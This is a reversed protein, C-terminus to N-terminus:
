KLEKEIEARQSVPDSYKPWNPVALDDKKDSIEEITQSKDEVMLNQRSLGADAMASNNELSDMEAEQEEKTSKKKPPEKGQTVIKAAKKAMTIAASETTPNLTAVPEDKKKNEGGEKKDTVYLQDSSISVIENKNQESEEVTAEIGMEANNLAAAASSIKM